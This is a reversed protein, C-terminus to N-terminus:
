SGYGGPIRFFRQFPDPFLDTFFVHVRSWDVYRAFPEEALMKHFRQPTDGGALAVSFFGNQAIAEHAPVM